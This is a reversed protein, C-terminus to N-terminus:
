RHQVARQSARPNRSQPAVGHIVSWPLSGFRRRHGIAVGLIAAPTVDALMEIPETAHQLHVAVAPIALEGSRVAAAARDREGVAQRMRPALEEVHM